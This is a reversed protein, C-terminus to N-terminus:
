RVLSHEEWVLGLFSSLVHCLTCVGLDRRQAAKTGEYAFWAGPGCGWAMALGRLVVAARILVHGVKGFQPWIVAPSSPHM